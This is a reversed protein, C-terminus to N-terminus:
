MRVICKPIRRYADGVLILGHIIRCLKLVFGFSLSFLVRSGYIGALSRCVHAEPLRFDYM